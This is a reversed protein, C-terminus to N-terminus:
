LCENGMIVTAVLHCIDLFVVGSELICPRFVVDTNASLQALCLSSCEVEIEHGLCPKYALIGSLQFEVEGGVNPKWEETIGNAQCCLSVHVTKMGREILAFVM